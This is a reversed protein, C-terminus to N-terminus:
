RFETNRNSYFENGNEIKLMLLSVLGMLSDRLDSTVHM